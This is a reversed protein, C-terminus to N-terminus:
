VQRDVVRFWELLFGIIAQIKVECERSIGQCERFTGWM